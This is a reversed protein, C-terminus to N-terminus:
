LAKLKQHMESLGGKKLLEESITMLEQRIEPSTIDLLSHAQQDEPSALGREIVQSLFLLSKRSTQLGVKVPENMGPISLITDYLLALETKQLM